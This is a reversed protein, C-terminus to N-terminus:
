QITIQPNVMTYSDGDTYFMILYPQGGTLSLSNLTISTANATTCGVETGFPTCGLGTFVALRSWANTTTANSANISYTGTSAPTYEYWVANYSYTDCSGGTPPDDDFTGTLGYPFTQGTLSAPSNCFSGPPPPPLTTVTIQPNVMTYTEGDTSFVITYPQGATLYLANSTASQSSDLVCDLEAGLPACSAGDFVALRSYANTTTSNVVDLQYYGTTTPTYEYWIANTPSTVCSGAFTPDDSFTGSQQYPYAVSSIDVASSCTEGPGPPPLATIDITPNVMTYSAGDTHFMILYAQGAALAPTAGVSLTSSIECAVESGYPNCTTGTFVAMRSYAWTTTANTLSIDYLTTTPATYSFWVTNTYGSTCSGGTSPTDTFTGSLQYPFTAGTM